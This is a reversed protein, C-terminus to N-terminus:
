LQAKVQELVRLVIEDLTGEIRAGAARIHGGGGFSQAVRAVDVKGASRLSVKVANENIVKFM